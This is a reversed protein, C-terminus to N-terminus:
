LGKGVIAELSALDKSVADSIKTGYASLSESETASYKINFDTMNGAADGVAVIDGMKTGDDTRYMAFVCYKNILAVMNTEKGANTTMDNIMASGKLQVDKYTLVVDTISNVADKAATMYNIKADVGFLTTGSKKLSTSITESTTGDTFNINFSYPTVTLTLSIKSPM